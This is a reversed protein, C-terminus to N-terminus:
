VGKELERTALRALVAEVEARAAKHQRHQSSPQGSLEAAIETIGKGSALLSLIRAVHPDRPTPASESASAGTPGPYPRSPAAIPGLATSHGEQAGGVARSRGLDLTAGAGDGLLGAVRVIDARTTNPIAVTTTEGSTRWLIARGTELREVQAAEETPLLMRAQGRKMRHAIVSAFSDRLESTVREATWIQGSGCVFVHKKRYEQAVAELLQGLEDGIKSRGLLKTLEDAWLIIPTQDASRGKVRSEGIDAVFRVAELIRKDDSAPECLYRGALPALTAALSDDGAEAHPDIVVFRAGHLATQAALYRQTTTKGSGSFGAVVTSYLDRWDGVLEAGTAADIGLLLPQGRGVRGGDLLQAFTPVVGVATSEALAPAVAGRDDGRYDLRPANTTHPAYSLTHPVPGHSAALQQTGHFAGLAQPGVTGLDAALVPVLGDARPMRERRFRAIHAVGLSALYALAAFGAAIAGLNVAAARVPAWFEESERERELRAIEADQRAFDLATPQSWEGAMGTLVSALLLVAFFGGLAIILPKM